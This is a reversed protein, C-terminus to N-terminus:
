AEEEPPPLEVRMVTGGDPRTLAGITGGHARVIVRSVALGLGTGDRRGTRFPEFVRGQEDEPIGPGRDAVEIRYGGGETRRGTLEVTSGPRTLASANSLLNDVVQRLRVPDAELDVAEAECSVEVSAGAETSAFRTAVERLLSGADLRERALGPDRGYALLDEVIRQCAAAEQDLIRLEQVQEDDRAEPIMTKLYGRIVAVPNNIEHAVGAALQGVAALRESKVLARERDHLQQAMADFARAVIRIEGRGVDGVPPDFEGRGFRRAAEALEQLPVIIARRLRISFLTAFLIITLVGACGGVMAVGTADQARSRAAEMRRELSSVVADAADTARQTHGEAVRHAERLREHEGALAAPLVDHQFVRDLATSEAVLADLHRRESEPVRLRLARARRQLRELWAEHPEVQADDRQIVTHAEHLYHERISLSLSLAERVSEGDARVEELTSAVRLLLLALTVCLAVSVTAVAGFGFALQASIAHDDDRHRAKM